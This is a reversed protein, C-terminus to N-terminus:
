CNSASSPGCNAKSSREPADDVSWPRDSRAEHLETLQRVHRRLWAPDNHVGLTRLRTGHLLELDFLAAM